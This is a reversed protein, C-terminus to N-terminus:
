AFSGFGHAELRGDLAVMDLERQFLIDFGSCCPSCGLKGVVREIATSLQNIDNFASHPMSVTVSRYPVPDQPLSVSGPPLPQPSLEVKEGARHVLFKRELQLHLIDCGTACM